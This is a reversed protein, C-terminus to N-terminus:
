TLNLGDYSGLSKNYEECVKSPHAITFSNVKERWELRSMYPQKLCTERCTYCTLRARGALGAGDLETDHEGPPSVPDPQNQDPKCEKALGKQGRKTFIQKRESGKAKISWGIQENMTTIAIYM